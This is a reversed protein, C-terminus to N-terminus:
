PYVRHFEKSLHRSVGTRKQLFLSNHIQLVAGRQCIMYAIDSPEGISLSTSTLSAVLLFSSLFSFTFTLGKITLIIQKNIPNKQGAKLIINKNKKPILYILYM